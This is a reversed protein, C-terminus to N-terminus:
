SSASELVVIKTKPPTIMQKTVFDAHPNTTFQRAFESNEADRSRNLYRQTAKRNRNRKGATKLSQFANRLTGFYVGSANKFLHWGGRKRRSRVGRNQRKRM